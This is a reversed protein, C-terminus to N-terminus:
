LRYEEESLLRGDPAYKRVIRKVPTVTQAPYYGSAPTSYVYPQRASVPSPSFLMDFLAGGIITTGAGILAGSGAKGGSAGASLAGVGAGLLGQRIIQRNPDNMSSVGSTYVPQTYVPEQPVAYVSGYSVSQVPAAYVPQASYAYSSQAYSPTGTLMNLLVGGIVNTGAGILAGTGAKGGSVDAAIAGTGAGLLGQRLIDLSTNEAYAEGAALSLSVACAVAFMRIKAWNKM